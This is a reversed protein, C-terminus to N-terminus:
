VDCEPLRFLLGVAWNFANEERMEFNVLGYQWLYVSFM